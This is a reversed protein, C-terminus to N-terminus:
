KNMKKRKEDFVDNVRSEEQFVYENRPIKRFPFFFFFSLELLM